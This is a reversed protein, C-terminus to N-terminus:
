CVSRGRKMKGEERGPRKGLECIRGRGMVLSWRWRRWRGTRGLMMWKEM